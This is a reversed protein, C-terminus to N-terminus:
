AALRRRHYLASGIEEHREFARGSLQAGFRRDPQNRFERTPEGLRKSM